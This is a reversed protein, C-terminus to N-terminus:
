RLEVTNRIALGPANKNGFNLVEFSVKLLSKGPLCRSDVCIQMGARVAGWVGTSKRPRDLDTHCRCQGDPKIQSMRESSLLLGHQPPVAKPFGRVPTAPNCVLDAAKWSTNSLHVLDQNVRCTRLMSTWTWTWWPDLVATRLMWCAGSACSEARCKQYFVIRGSSTSRFDQAAWCGSM